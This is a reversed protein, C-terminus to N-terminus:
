HSRRKAALSAVALVYASENKTWASEIAFGHELLLAIIKDKTLIGYYSNGRSTRLLWGDLHPTAKPSRSTTAFYTNRWQTVVLLRGARRRLAEGLRKLVRARDEQLPIASLVNACLIFDYRRDEKSFAAETMVRAAPWHQRVYDVVTTVQGGLRQQRTLQVESDVLTLHSSRDALHSAYRLKGCGYDLADDVPERALLWEVLYRSPKEIPKAANETRIESGCVKYRM